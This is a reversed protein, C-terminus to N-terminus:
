YYSGILSGAEILLMALLTRVLAAVEPGARAIRRQPVELVATVPILSVAMSLFLLKLVFILSVAPSFVRGVTRTYGDFGWITFGYVSLYALVLSVVCATLATMMVALMGALVRPLVEHTLMIQDDLAQTGQRGEARLRLLDTANPITCRLAVFLAAALPILEMALVRVVMELAYQSLGYSVATVVVIHILVLSLLAALVAFTLINPAIGHVLHHALAGRHARRYSSPSIALALTLAGLHVTRWWGALWGWSSRASARLPETRATSSSM